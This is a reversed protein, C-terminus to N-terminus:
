PLIQCGHELMHRELKLRDTECRIRADESISKLDEYASKMAISRFQQLEDVAASYGNVSTQFALLLRDREECEV